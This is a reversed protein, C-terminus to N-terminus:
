FNISLPWQWGRGKGRSREPHNSPHHAQRVLPRPKGESREPSQLGHIYLPYLYLKPRSFLFIFNRLCFLYLYRGEARGQYAFNLIYTYFVKRFFYKEAFRMKFYLLINGVLINCMNIIKKIDHNNKLYNKDMSGASILFNFLMDMDIYSYGSLFNSVFYKVAVLYREIQLKTDRVSIRDNHFRYKVLLEPINNIEYGRVLLDTALKYDETFSFAENYKGVDLIAKKRFMMSSHVLIFGGFLINAIIEEIRIPLTVTAVREGKENIAEGFSGLLALAPKKDLCDVQRKLRHPFMIDDADIRAIYDGQAQDLGINLSTVQSLNKKNELLRIRDDNYSKIIEKTKDTSGDDVILFEFDKYTQALVSDMCSRLYAEGNYVAM